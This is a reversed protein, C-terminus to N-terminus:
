HADAMCSTLTTKVESSPNLKALEMCEALEVDMLQQTIVLSVLEKQSPLANSRVM